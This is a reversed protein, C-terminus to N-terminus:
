QATPVTKMARMRDGLAKRQEATLNKRHPPKIRVWAKPVEFRAYRDDPTKHTGTGTRKADPQSELFAILKADWTFVSATPEGANYNIVTERETSSLKYAANNM